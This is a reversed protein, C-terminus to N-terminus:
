IYPEQFVMMCKQIKKLKEFYAEAKELALFEEDSMAFLEELTYVENESEEAVASFVGSIVSISMIASIIVSLIKNRKM